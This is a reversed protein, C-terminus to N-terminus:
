MKLEGSMFQVAMPGMMVFFTAPFIFLVLPFSMKVSAKAALEEAALQRKTRMAEALVRLATGVSTGFRDAQVLMATLSQLNVNGTRTAMNKFAEARPVGLRSETHTIGFERSIAPHALALEDGVRQVTGDVTLGSEVCIVMLDLADPLGENLSKQNAKIKSSLWAQPAMYGILGGASLGLFAQGMANGLVFGVIVGGILLIFKFGIVSRIISPDYMGAQALKGRIGNMKKQENSMFPKAALQGLTRLLNGRRQVSEGSGDPQDRQGRDNLRDSIRRDDGSQVRNLVMYAIASVCGAVSFFFLIQNMDNNM